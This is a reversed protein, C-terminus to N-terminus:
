QLMMEFAVRNNLKRKRLPPDLRDLIAEVEALTPRSPVGPSIAVQVLSRSTLVCSLMLAPLLSKHGWPHRSTVAM